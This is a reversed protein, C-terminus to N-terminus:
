STQYRCQVPCVALPLPLSLASLRAQVTLFLHSIDDKGLPSTPNGQCNATSHTRDCKEGCQCCQWLYQLFTVYGTLKIVLKRYVAMTSAKLPWVRLALGMQSISIKREGARHTGIEGGGEGEGGREQKREKEREKEIERLLQQSAPKGTLNILM